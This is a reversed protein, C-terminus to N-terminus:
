NYEKLENNDKEMLEKIKRQEWNKGLLFSFVDFVVLGHILLGLGWPVWIFFMEISLLADIYSDGHNMNVFVRNVTNFGNIVIYIALHWYFGKLAKVKKKARLYNDEKIYKKTEM